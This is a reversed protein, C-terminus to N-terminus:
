GLVQVGKPGAVYVVPRMGVFLGHEVVGVIGMLTAALRAPALRRAAFGLDIIHNGSDTVFIEGQRSRLVPMCGPFLRRFERIVFPEAFPLVEVPVPWALRQVLKSADAIIVLRRSAVAVCKERTMGGGGGKTLNRRADVEDAGDIDVDPVEALNTLPINLEHALHATQESTPVGCVRLGDHAIRRSLEELAFRATTGTGLGVVMGSRVEARVAAVAAARKEGQQDHSAGANTAVNVSV